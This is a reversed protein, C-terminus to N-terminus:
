LCVIDVGIFSECNLHKENKKEIKSTQKKNKATGDRTLKLAMVGM